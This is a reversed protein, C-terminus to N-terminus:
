RLTPSCAATGTGSVEIPDDSLWPSPKRQRGCTRVHLGGPCRSDFFEIEGTGLPHGGRVRPRRTTSCQRIWSSPSREGCRATDISTLTWPATFLKAQLRYMGPNGLAALTQDIQKPLWVIPLTAIRHAQGALAQGPRFDPREQRGGLVAATIAGVSIGAVAVPRFGPRQEYLAKLVGYEYARACRRTARGPRPRQSERGGHGVGQTM